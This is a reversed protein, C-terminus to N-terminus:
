GECLSWGVSGDNNYYTIKEYNNVGQKTEANGIMGFIKM